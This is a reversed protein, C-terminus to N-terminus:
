PRRAQVRRRRRRVRSGFTRLRCDWLAVDRKAVLRAYIWGNMAHFAQLGLLVAQDSDIEGYGSLLAASDVDDGTGCVVISKAVDVIAPAFLTSEFDVIGFAKARLSSSRNPLVINEPHLDGHCLVTLGQGIGHLDIWRRIARALSSATVEGYEAAIREHRECSRLICGLVEDVALSEPTPTQHFCRLLRGVTGLIVDRDLHHIRAFTGLSYRGIVDTVIFAGRNQPLQGVGIVRPHRFPVVTDRLRELASVERTLGRSNAYRKVFLRAKRWKLLWSRIGVRVATPEASGECLGTITEVLEPSM